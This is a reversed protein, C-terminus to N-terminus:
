LDFLPLLCNQATETNSLESDSNYLWSCLPQQVKQVKGDCLMYNWISSLYFLLQCYLFVFFLKKDARSFLSSTSKIYCIKSIPHKVGCKPIRIKSATDYSSFEQLVSKIIKSKVFFCANLFNPTGPLMKKKKQNWLYIM